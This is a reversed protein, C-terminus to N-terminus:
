PASFPLRWVGNFFEQTFPLGMKEYVKSTVNVRSATNSGKAHWADYMDIVARTAKVHDFFLEGFHEAATEQMISNTKGELLLGIYAHVLEHALTSGLVVRNNERRLQTLINRETPTTVGSGFITDFRITYVRKSDRLENLM